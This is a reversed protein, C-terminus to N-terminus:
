DVYSALKEVNSGLKSMQKEIKDMKVSLESDDWNEIANLLKDINMELRNIREDQSTMRENIDDMLTVQEELKSLKDQQNFIRQELSSLIRIQEHAAEKIDSSSESLNTMKESASDIWEGMYVLAKRVVSDSNNSKELMKCITNLKGVFDSGAFTNYSKDASVILFRTQEKLNEIEDKLGKMDGQTLSDVTSTINHLKETLVNLEELPQANDKIESLALRMKTLDTEIDQMSYTYDNYDGSTSLQQLQKTIAAINQNIEDTREEVFDKIDESEEIFSVQDFISLVASMLSEKMDKLYSKVEDSSSASAAENISDNLQNLCKKISEINETPELREIYEQQELILDKVEEFDAITGGCDSLLDIKNNLLELMSKIKEDSDSLVKVTSEVPQIANDVSALTMSIDELTQYDDMSALIDVKENIIKIMENIDDHAVFKKVDDLWSSKIYTLIDELKKDIGSEESSLFDSVDAVNTSSSGEEIIKIEPIIKDVTTKLGKIDNQLLDFAKVFDFSPESNKSKKTDSEETIDYADISEVKDIISVQSEEVKDLQKLINQLINEIDSNNNSLKDLLSSYNNFEGKLSEIIELSDVADSGSLKDLKEEFNFKLDEIVNLIDDHNIAVTLLSKIDEYKKNLSEEIEESIDETNIETAPAIKSVSSTITEKLNEIREHISSKLDEKFLEANEKVSSLETKIDESSDIISQKIDDTASEIDLASASGSMLGRVGVIVEDPNFSENLISKLEEHKESLDDKISKTDQYIDNVSNSLAKVNNNIDETAEYITKLDNEQASISEQLEISSLSQQSLDEVSAKLDDLKADVNEKISSLSDNIEASVDKEAIALKIEDQGQIINDQLQSVISSVDEKSAKDILADKVGDVLAEQDLADSIMAKIEDHQMAMNEQIMDAASQILDQQSKQFSDINRLYEHLEEMQEPSPPVINKLSAELYDKLADVKILVSDIDSLIFERINNEVSSISDMVPKIDVDDAANETILQKLSSISSNLEKTFDSSSLETIKDRIPLIEDYIAKTSNTLSEIIDTNLLALEQKFDSFKEELPELSFTEKEESALIKNTQRILKLIAATKEELLEANAYFGQQLQNEAYSAGSDLGSKLEEFRDKLFSSLNNTYTEILYEEGSEGSMEKKQVYEILEAIQMKLGDLESISYHLESEIGGQREVSRAMKELKENVSLFYESNSNHIKSIAGSLDDIASNIESSNSFKDKYSDLVGKIKSILVDFDVTVGDSQVIPQMTLKGELLSKIEDIKEKLEEGRNLKELSSAIKETHERLSLVDEQEAKTHIQAAMDESTEKIKSNVLWDEISNTKNYINSFEKEFDLDSIKDDISQTTSILSELGAEINKDTNKLDEIDEVSPLEDLKSSIDDTKELITDIKKANQVFEEVYKKSPLSKLIKDIAIKVEDDCSDSPASEIVSTIKNRLIDGLDETINKITTLDDRFLTLSTNLDFMDGKVNSATICDMIDELKLYVKQLSGEITETDPLNEIEQAVKGLEQKIENTYLTIEDCSKKIDLYDEKTSSNDVSEKIQDAVDKIEKSDSKQMLSAMKSNIKDTKEVLADIVSQTNKLDQTTVVNKMLKELVNGNDEISQLRTIVQEVANYIVSIQMKVDDNTKLPDLTIITSLIKKLSTNLDDIIGRYSHNLNEFDKRLLSITRLIDEKDTKNNILESIKSEISTIVARNQKAESHFNNVNKTFSESFEKLDLTKAAEDQNNYLVKLAKEIDEFHSLTNDYKAQMSASLENVYAKMLDKSVTDSAFDLKASIGTLLRDFSDASVNNVRKMDLLLNIIKDIDQTM